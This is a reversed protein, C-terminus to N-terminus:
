RKTPRRRMTTTIGLIVTMGIIYNTGPKRAEMQKQKAKKTLTSLTSVSHDQPIIQMYGQIGKIRTAAQTTLGTRSDSAKRAITM